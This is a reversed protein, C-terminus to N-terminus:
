WQTRVWSNEHREMLRNGEKKREKRGEKRGEKM